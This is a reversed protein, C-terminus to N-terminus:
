IWDNRVATAVLQIANNVGYKKLMKLIIGDVTKKALCIETGIEKHTMGKSLYDIIRKEKETPILQIVKHM